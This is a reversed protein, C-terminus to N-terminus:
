AQVAADSGEEPEAHHYVLGASLVGEIRHLAVLTEGARAEEAEEVTVILRHDGTAHHVEVGPLTAMATCVRELWGPRVHVLVGCINM